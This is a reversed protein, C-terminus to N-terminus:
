LILFTRLRKLTNDPIEVKTSLVLIRQKPRTGYKEGIDVFVKEKHESM